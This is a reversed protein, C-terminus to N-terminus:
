GEGAAIAACAFAPMAPVMREWVEATIQRRNTEQGGIVRVTVTLSGYPKHWTLDFVDASRRDGQAARRAVCLRASPPDRGARFDTKVTARRVFAAGADVLDRVAAVGAPSADDGYFATVAALSRSGADTAVITRAVLSTGGNDSSGSGTVSAKYGGGYYVMKTDKSVTLPLGTGKIYAPLQTDFQNWVTRLAYVICENLQDDVLKAVLM